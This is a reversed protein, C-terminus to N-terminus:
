NAGQKDEINNIIIVLAMTTRVVVVVIIEKELESLAYNSGLVTFSVMAKSNYKLHVM